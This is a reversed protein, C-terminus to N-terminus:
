ASAAKVPVRPTSPREQPREKAPVPTKLPEVRHIRKPKGVNV